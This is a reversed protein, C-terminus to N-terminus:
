YRWELGLSIGQAWLSSESISVLGPRAPGPSGFALDTPVLGPNVTRDIQNGPRAVRNWYLFTYGFTARWAPAIRYGLELGVEPVVGFTSHYHRGINSVQALVGGPVTVAASGPANLTSSGEIVVLEQTTGLAVKGLLGVSLADGQWRLRGGVQGGYFHNATHFRDSDTVTGPPTVFSTPGAFNLFGPVLPTLSDEIALSETLDLARFGGLVDFRWPSGDALDAALNLEYGQLRTRAAVAVGGALSAPGFAASVPFSDSYSAEAGTATNIVPRAILPNGAADSALGFHASRTELAFYGGELSLGSGLGVGTSLRLGSFAGWDLPAGGFVIHTNPQGLAGPIPDDASGTTVLPNPNPGSRVWWLLYEASVWLRGTEPDGCAPGDLCCAPPCSCAAAPAGAPPSGPSQAEALATASLLLAVSALFGKRM